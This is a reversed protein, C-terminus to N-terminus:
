EDSIGKAALDGFWRFQRHGAISEFVAEPAEAVRLMCMAFLWFVQEALVREGVTGDARFRENHHALDNRAFLVKKPWRELDGAILGHFPEGALEVCTQIRRNYAVKRKGTGRRTKDFSELAACCNMIRDELYMEESYRTAMARGLETRYTEAATMWRAIGSMGGLHQLTFYHAFESVPETDRARVHWRSFYKMTERRESMDGPVVSDWTVAPHQFEFRRFEAADGVGLSVLDQVDSALASYVELPKPEDFRLFLDWRQEVGSMYTADGIGRLQQALTVKMPGAQVSEHEVRKPPVSRAKVVLFRRDDPKKRWPIRQKLGSEVVWGTLHSMEVHVMDASLDARETFWAGRLFANVAVTEPSAELATPNRRVSFSDVLTLAEDGVLGHIVPYEPDHEEVRLRYRQVSGDALINDGTEVPRLEQLLRLRSGAEVDWTFTGPVKHEPHEPLWWTGLLEVRDNVLARGDCPCLM